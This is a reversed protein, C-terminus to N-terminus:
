KAARAIVRLQPAAGAEGGRAANRKIQSVLTEITISDLTARAIQEIEGLVQHLNRGTDTRAGRDGGDSTQTGIDEFLEIIDLLTTRKANGSFKYGGGVGRTSEVLGARGLDRLVKALHNNSIGYKEAIEGASLQREPDLALELVSYLAFQTAKQLKM